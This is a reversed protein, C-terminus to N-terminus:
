KCTFAIKALRQKQDKTMLQARNKETQSVPQSSSYWPENDSADDTSSEIHECNELTIDERM